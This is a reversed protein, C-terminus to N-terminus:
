LIDFIDVLTEKVSAKFKIQIYFKFSIHRELCRSPLWCFGQIIILCSGCTFKSMFIEKAAYVRPEPKM